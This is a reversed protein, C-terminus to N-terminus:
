RHNGMMKSSPGLSHADAFVDAADQSTLGMRLWDKAESASMFLYAERAPDSPVAECHRPYLYVTGVLVGNHRVHELQATDEADWQSM